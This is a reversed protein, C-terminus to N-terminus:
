MEDKACSNSFSLDNEICVLFRCFNAKVIELKICEINGTVSFVQLKRFLGSNLVLFIRVVNYPESVKICRPGFVHSRIGCSIFADLVRLSNLLFIFFHFGSPHVHLIHLTYMGLRPNMQNTEWLTFIEWNQLM